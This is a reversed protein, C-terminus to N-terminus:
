LHRWHLTQSSIIPISMGETSPPSFSSSDSDDDKFISSLLSINGDLQGIHSLNDPVSARSENQPLYIINSRVRNVSQVIDM